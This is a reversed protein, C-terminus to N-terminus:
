YSYIRTYIYLSLSVWFHVCVEVYLLGAQIIQKYIKLEGKFIDTSLRQLVISYVNNVSIKM